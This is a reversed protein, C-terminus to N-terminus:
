RVGYGLLGLSRDLRHESVRIGGPENGGITTLTGDKAALVFNTHQGFPSPEAYVAIDGLKPADGSSAPRWTGAQQLAEQMTFVGPIRWGGSHPNVLPAGAEKAVWSVFDACWPEEVGQAYTTGPRNAAYEARVVRLFAQQRPTTAAADLDPFTRRTGAGTLDAGGSGSPGSGPVLACGAVGTGVAGLTLVASLTVRLVPAIRAATM